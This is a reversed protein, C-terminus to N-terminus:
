QFVIFRRHKVRYVFHIASWFRHSGNIAEEDFIRKGHAVVLTGILKLLLVFLHGQVDETVLGLTGNQLYLLFIVKLCLGVLMVALHERPLPEDDHQGDDQNHSHNHDGNQNEVGQFLFAYLSFDVGVKQFKFFAVRLLLLFM